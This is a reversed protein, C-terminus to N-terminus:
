GRPRPSAPRRRAQRPVARSFRRAKGAARAPAARAAGFLALIGALAILDAALLPTTLSHAAGAAQLRDSAFGIGAALGGLMLVNILLMNLGTVTAKLADPLEAEIVAFCPGYSGTVFLISAAMGALMPLSGAPALRYLLILPMLALLAVGLSLARDIGFRAFLRDAAFGAGATGAVGFVLFMGGYLRGAEAAALGREAVLWLQTFATTAVHAHLFIIALCACRLRANRGLATAVASLSRRAASGAAPAERVRAVLLTAVLGLGGLLLFCARWGIRPGLYAAVLYSAGVGLPIGMFFIGVATARRAEPTQRLLLTSATPVLTAEGAAVFPRLALLSWFSTVLGTLATFLSWAAVGGTLVRVRGVRDALLGAGLAAVAYVLSFALGVVLGFQARSLDLDAMIEPAFSAVLHRDVHNLVHLATFLFLLRGARGAGVGGRAQM